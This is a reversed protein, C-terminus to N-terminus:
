HVRVCPLLFSLLVNVLKGNNPTAMSVTTVVFATVMAVIICNEKAACIFMDMM